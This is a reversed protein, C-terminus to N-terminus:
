RELLADVSYKGAGSLFLTLLIALYLVILEGHDAGRGFFAFHHVFAWAVAINVFAILAAWRTALGLIILVSCISDSLMAFVLSPVVGIHLPDPFHAAMASFTFLKEWGHKLLLPVVGALRLALLGTNSNTPIVTMQLLNRM